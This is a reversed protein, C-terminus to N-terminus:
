KYEKLLKELEPDLKEPINRIGKPLMQYYVNMGAQWKNIGLNKVYFEPIPMNNKNLFDIMDRGKKNKDTLEEKVLSPEESATNEQLKTDLNKGLIKDMFWAKQSNLLSINGGGITNFKFRNGMFGAKEVPSLSDYYAKEWEGAEEFFGVPLDTGLNNVAYNYLVPPNGSGSAFLGEVEQSVSSKYALNRNIAETNIFKLNNRKLKNDNVEFTTLQLATDEEKEPDVIVKGGLFYQPQLSSEKTVGAQEWANGVQMGAQAESVFLRLLEGNDVQTSDVEGNITYFARGTLPDREVNKGALIDDMVYPKNHLYKKFWKSDIAVNVKQEFISQDDGSADKEFRFGKDVKVDPTQDFGNAWAMSQWMSYDKERLNNGNFRYSDIRSLFTPLNDPSVEETSVMLNGGLQELKDLRQFYDQNEQKYQKIQEQTLNQANSKLQTERWIVGGDRQAEEKFAGMIKESLKPDKFANTFKPSHNAKQNLLSIDTIFDSETVKRNTAISALRRQTSNHAQLIKKQLDEM